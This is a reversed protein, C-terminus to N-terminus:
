AQAKTRAFATPGEASAGIASIHVVRRIGAQACADFLACTGQVQVAQVDDGGGDQLVGVCNVVADVGALLPRWAEATTLRAFDAEIWHAYPCRRQAEAITRGAAVLAHGERNLRALVASGILGYAGTVLVRM